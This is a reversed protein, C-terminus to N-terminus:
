DSLYDRMLIARYIITKEEVYKKVAKGRLGIMRKAEWRAIIRFEEAWQELKDKVRQVPLYVGKEEM